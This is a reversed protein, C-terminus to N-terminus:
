KVDKDLLLTQPFAQYIHINGFDCYDVELTV